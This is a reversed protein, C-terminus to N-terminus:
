MFYVKQHLKGEHNNCCLANLADDYTARSLGEFVTHVSMEIVHLARQLCKQYVAKETLNEAQKKRADHQSKVIYMKLWDVALKWTRRSMQGVFIHAASLMAQLQYDSTSSEQSM